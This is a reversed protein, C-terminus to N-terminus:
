KVSENEVFPFLNSILGYINPFDQALEYFGSLTIQVEVIETHLKQAEIGIKKLPICMLTDGTLNDFSDGDKIFVFNSVIM